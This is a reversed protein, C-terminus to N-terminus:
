NENVPFDVAAREGPFNRAREDLAFQFQTFPPLPPPPRIKLLHWSSALPRALTQWIINRHVRTNEQIKKKKWNKKKKKKLPSVKNSTLVIVSAANDIRVLPLQFDGRCIFTAIYMLRRSQGVQANKNRDFIERERVAFRRRPMEASNIALYLHLM